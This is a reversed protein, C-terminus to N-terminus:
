RFQVRNSSITKIERHQKLKVMKLKPLKIYGHFLMINGNVRNTTYPKRSKRSKFTPFDSQGSFFNKYATQLNLQANALAM